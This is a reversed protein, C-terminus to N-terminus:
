SERETSSTRPITVGLAIEMWDRNQKKSFEAWERNQKQALDHWMKNVVLVAVGGLIIGICVGVILWQVETM